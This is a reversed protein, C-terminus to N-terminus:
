SSFLIAYKMFILLFHDTKLQDFSEKKSSPIYEDIENGIM